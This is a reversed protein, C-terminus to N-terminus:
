LRSLPDDDVGLDVVEGPEGVQVGSAGVDEVSRGNTLVEGRGGLSLGLKRVCGGEWTKLRFPHWV